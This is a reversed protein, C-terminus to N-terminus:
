KLYMLGIVNKVDFYQTTTHKLTNKVIKMSYM